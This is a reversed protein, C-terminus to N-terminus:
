KGNKVNKPAKIAKLAPKEDVMNPKYALAENLDLRLRQNADILGDNEAKLDDLATKLNSFDVKNEELSTKLEENEAKLNDNEAKFEELSSKLEENEAKLDNLVGEEISADKNLIEETLESKVTWGYTANNAKMAKWQAATFEKERGGRSVKVMKSM